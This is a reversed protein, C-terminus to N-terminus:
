VTQRNAPGDSVKFYYGIVQRIVGAWGCAVSATTYIAQNEKMGAPALCSLRCRRRVVGILFGEPRSNANTLLLISRLLIYPVLAKTRPKATSLSDDALILSALVNKGWRINSKSFPAEHRLMHRRPLPLM